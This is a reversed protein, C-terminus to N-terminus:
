NLIKNKIKRGRSSFREDAKAKKVPREQLYKYAKPIQNPEINGSISSWYDKLIDKETFSNEIIWYVTGDVFKCQYEVQKGRKYKHSLIMDIEFLEMSDMNTDTQSECSSADSEEFRVRKASKTNM